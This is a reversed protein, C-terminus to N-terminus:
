ISKVFCMALRPCAEGLGEPAPQGAMSRPSTVFRHRSVEDSVTSPSRGLERAIEQCPRGRDLMREISNREARTLRAYSRGPGKGGKEAM